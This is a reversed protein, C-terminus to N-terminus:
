LVNLLTEFCESIESSDESFGETIVPYFEVEPLRAHELGQM